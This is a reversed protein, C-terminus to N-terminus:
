TGERVACSKSRTWQKVPDDASRHVRDTNDTTAAKSRSLRPSASRCRPRCAALKVLDAALDPLREYHGEAERLEIRLITARRRLGAVRLGERFAAWYPQAVPGKFSIGYLFGILRRHPM